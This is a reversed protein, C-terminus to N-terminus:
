HYDFNISVGQNPEFLIDKEGDYIRKKGIHPEGQRQLIDDQRFRNKDFGFFIRRHCSVSEQNGFLGDWKQYSEEAKVDRAQPEVRDIPVEHKTSRSMRRMWDRCCNVTITYLWGSFNYPRRFAGLNQYAKFFAEQTVDEADTHNGLKHRAIGYATAKHRDVLVGFATDDGALSERVLKEDRNVSLGGRLERARDYLVGFCRCDECLIQM